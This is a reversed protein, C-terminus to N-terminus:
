RMRGIDLQLYCYLIFMTESSNAHMTWLLTTLAIVLM